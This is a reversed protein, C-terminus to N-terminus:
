ARHQDQIALLTLEDPALNHLCHLAPQIPRRQDLDRTCAMERHEIVGRSEFM